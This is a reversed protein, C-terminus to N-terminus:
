VARPHDSFPVPAPGRRSRCPSPAPVHKTVNYREDRTGSDVAISSADPDSGEACDRPLSTISGIFLVAFLLEASVAAESHRRWNRDSKTRSTRAFDLTSIPESPATAVELMM